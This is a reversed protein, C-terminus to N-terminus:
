EIRRMFKGETAPQDKQENLLETTRELINEM